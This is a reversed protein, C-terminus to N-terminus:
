AGGGGNRPDLMKARIRKAAADYQKATLEYKQLIENKQMDESWGELVLTADRDDEFKGFIKGVREKAILRREAAPQSGEAAAVRIRENPTDGPGLNDLLSLEQGEGDCKVADCELVERQDVKDKSHDAISRMAGRLYTVFDVRKNWRRGSGNGQAGEFTSLQAEGLLDEWTGRSTSGLGRVRFTASQKLKQLDAPSLAAIAQDIEERTAWFQLEELLDRLQLPDVLVPIHMLETPRPPVQHPHEYDFAAIAMKQSPNIERIARALEIVDKQPAFCDIKVGDTQPVYYDILVVDFPRCHSYLRLGEARDRASRVVYGEHKLFQQIVTLLSSDNEIVLASRSGANIATPPHPKAAGGIVAGETGLQASPPVADYRGQTLTQFQSAIASALAPRLNSTSEAQKMQDILLTWAEHDAEHNKAADAEDKPVDREPLAQLRATNDVVARLGQRPPRSNLDFIVKALIATVEQLTGEQASPDNKMGLDTGALESVTNDVVARMPQRPPRSNLDLIVKALIATVEPPTREQAPPDNTMGPDTGATEPVTNDVVARMPQRPPRSDFWLIVQGLPETAEQVLRDDKMTLLLDHAHRLEAVPSLLESSSHEMKGEGSRLAWVTPM